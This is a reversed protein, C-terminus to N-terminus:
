VCIAEHEGRGRYAIITQNDWTYADAYFSTSSLNSDSPALLTADGTKAGNTFSMGPSYGRNYADLSLIAMMLDQQTTM